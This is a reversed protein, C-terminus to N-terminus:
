SRMDQDLHGNTFRGLEKGTGTEGSILVTSGTPSVKSVRSLVGQLAPSAGVIEDFIPTEDIEERFFSITPVFTRISGPERAHL